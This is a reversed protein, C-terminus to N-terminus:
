KLNKLKAIAGAPDESSFVSNGAVLVNVGANILKAANNTEIGGDVEILVNYGSNDIMNRLEEIKNYNSSKTKIELKIEKSSETKNNWKYFSKIESLQICAGLKTEVIKRAIKEADKYNETTTKIIIYAM